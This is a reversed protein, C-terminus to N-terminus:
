PLSCFVVGLTGPGVHSGIVPGVSGKDVLIGPCVEELKAALRDREERADVGVAMVRLKEKITCSDAFSRVKEVLTNIAKQRTRVKEYLDVTGDITLIPKIKLLTGLLAQAGGIRGGRKLYELTDVMFLINMNDRLFQVTQLIVDKEAGAAALRAAELVLYALGGSTSRSDVTVIEVDVQESAAQASRFTGSIEKSLHISIITEADEAASRYAALFEGVSPQSTTPFERSARLREYFTEEPLDTEKFTEGQLHISLPVVTIDLKELQDKSLYATSDTVVKIKGM